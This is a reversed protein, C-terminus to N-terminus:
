KEIVITDDDYNCLKDEFGVKENWYSKGYRVYTESLYSIDDIAYLYVLGDKPDEKIIANHTASNFSDNAFRGYCSFFWTCWYLYFSECKEM